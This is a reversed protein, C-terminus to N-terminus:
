SAAAHGVFTGRILQRTAPSAFSEFRDAFAARALQQRTALHDLYRALPVLADPGGPMTVLRSVLGQLQTAQVHSDQFEGLVDQLGKAAVVAARVQDEPWLPGLLELLYRLEKGRKRLDHLPEPPSNDDIARGARVMDRYVARIRRSGVEEIPAAARPGSGLGGETRKRWDTWFASFRPGRLQRVMTRRAKIRTDVLLQRLPELDAATGAAIWGDLEPWALLQVDLDRVPGTVAQLWRLDARAQTRVEPDIVAKLERLLTRTRRVAIRLDHLFETDLEALTGPLNAEVTEALQACLRRVGDDARMGAALVPRDTPAPATGVHAAEAALSTTAREVGPLDALARVAETFARQYGLVPTIVLRTQLLVRARGGRLVLPEDTLVRVVTKQREDRVAATVQQSRV